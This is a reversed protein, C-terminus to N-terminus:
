NEAPRGQADLNSIEHIPEMTTGDPKRFVNGEVEGFLTAFEGMRAKSLSQRRVVVLAHEIFARRLSEAAADSWPRSLDIGTVEAGFPSMPAVDLAAYADARVHAGTVDPSRAGPNTIMVTP